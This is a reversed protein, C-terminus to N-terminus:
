LIIVTVYVICIWQGRLPTTLPYKFVFTTQGCRHNRFIFNLSSVTYNGEFRCSRRRLWHISGCEDAKWGDGYSRASQRLSPSMFSSFLLGFEPVRLMLLCRQVKAM